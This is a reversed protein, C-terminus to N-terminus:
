EQTGAQPGAAMDYIRGVALKEDCLDALATRYKTEFAVIDRAIESLAALWIECSRIARPPFRGEFTNKCVKGDLAPGFRGETLLMVAKSRGVLHADESNRAISGTLEWLECLPERCRAHHEKDALDRVDFSRLGELSRRAQVMLKEIAPIPARRAKPIRGLAGWRRLTRHLCDAKDRDSTDPGCLALWQTWDDRYSKKFRKILAQM